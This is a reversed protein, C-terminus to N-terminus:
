KLVGERNVQPVHKFVSDALSVQIEPGCDARGKVAEQRKSGHLLIYQKQKM